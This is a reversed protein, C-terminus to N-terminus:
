QPLAVGDSIGAVYEAEQRAYPLDLLISRAQREAFLSDINLSESYSPAFAVLSNKGYFHKQINENMFTASYVYSINYDNMLYDLKRYLIDSGKYKSAIFTEFPLYSLINDSSILLNDSSLYKEVPEILTEYLDYGIRQYDTFKTRAAESHSPDSLLNRFDVLSKM